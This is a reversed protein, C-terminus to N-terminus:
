LTARPSVLLAAHYDLRGGSGTVLILENRPVQRAGGEGRAQIVAESVPTMGQLYFGSLHGGGTNVPLQGGPSTQGDHVFDPAQGRPCLGYDELAQLGVYSFADYIQASQVDSPGVGAMRWLAAAALAGGAEIEPENGRFSGRGAHGQAFAHVYVPPKPLDPARAVTTLIVAIAGNVPYACDLMCFPDVISRAHMYGELDLPERLMARPNLSAWRRSAVAYGGLASRQLGFRDLYRQAALAYPGAAGFLGYQVEWDDLGSLQMVRNYSAAGSAKGPRLPVDSFVCAVTRALGHHLYLSAQQIAGVVSAGEIQFDGLLNLDGLGLDLRLRLPLESSPASPSRCILLGDLDALGLGCDEVASVVADIALDRPTGIDGRSFESFGLGVIASFPQRGTM